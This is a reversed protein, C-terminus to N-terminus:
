RAPTAGAGPTGTARPTGGAAPTGAPRLPTSRRRCSLFQVPSRGARLTRLARISPCSSVPALDSWYGSCLEHGAHETIGGYDSTRGDLGRITIADGEVATINGVTQGALLNQAAGGAAGAGGAGGAAAGAGGAAAGGAAGAGRAGAAGGAGGAAAVQTTFLACLEARAGIGGGFVLGLVIGAIFRSGRM